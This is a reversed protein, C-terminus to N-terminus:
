SRGSRARAALALGLVALLGALALEVRDALRVARTIDPGEPRPGRGLRPRHELRGNYRTPGGLEVGLAAAFAAEAVGGNPSPHASADRRVTTIV